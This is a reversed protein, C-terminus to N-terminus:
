GPWNWGERRGRGRDRERGGKRKGGMENNGGKNRCEERGKEKLGNGEM